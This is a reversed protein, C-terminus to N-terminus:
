GIDQGLKTVKTLAGFSPNKASRETRLIWGQSPEKASMGHQPDKGVARLKPDMATVRPELDEALAGLM